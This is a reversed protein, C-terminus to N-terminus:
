TAVYDFEGAPSVASTGGPTTVRVEVTGVGGAPSKATIRTPGVVTVGSAAKTGFRVTAGAVFGSGTITVVTGGGRPGDHLSLATVKPVALYDFEAAASVASTGGPTTVTVDVTGAARAPSKATVKASGTVQFSAATAGFDVKSAGTLGSGTITVVTGGHVPGDHVSLAIVKPAAVYDFVGDASVASTGSPTTVTVDVTGAVSAPSKATIRKGSTVEFSAAAKAGFDVKSAGTLGSGTITVM